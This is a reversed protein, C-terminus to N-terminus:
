DAAVVQVDRSLHVARAASPSQGHLCADAKRQSGQSDAADREGSGSRGKGEETVDFVGCRRLGDQERRFAQVALPEGRGAWAFRRM